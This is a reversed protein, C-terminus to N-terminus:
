RLSKEKRPQEISSSSLALERSSQSQDVSVEECRHRGEDESYSQCIGEQM